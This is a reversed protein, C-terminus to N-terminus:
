ITTSSVERVGGNSLRHIDDLNCAGATNRYTEIATTRAQHAEFQHAVGRPVTLSEGPYLTHCQSRVQQDDWWRIDLSGEVVFFNNSKDKHIHRSCYGGPVVEIFSVQHHFSHSVLWAKGWLKDTGQIKTVDMSGKEDTQIRSRVM